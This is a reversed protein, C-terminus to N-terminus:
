MWVMMELAERLYTNGQNQDDSDSVSALIGDRIMRDDNNLLLERCAQMSGLAAALHLATWGNKSTLLPDAGRDLLLHRMIRPGDREGSDGEEGGDDSALNCGLVACHLLTAGEGKTRLDVLTRKGSSTTTPMMKEEQKKESTKKKADDNGLLQLRDGEVDSKSSQEDNEEKNKKSKKSKKKLLVFRTKKKKKEKKQNSSSSSSNNSDDSCIHNSMWNFLTVFAEFRGNIAALHLPLHEKRPPSLELWPDAGGVELLLRVMSSHGKTAALHLPTLGYKARSNADAGHNVLLTRAIAEHNLSAAVHLVTRGDVTRSSEIFSRSPSTSTSTSTSTSSSSSSCKTLLIEEVVEINGTAVAFHLETAGDAADKTDRHQHQLSATIVNEFKAKSTSEKKKAMVDEHDDEDSVEILGLAELGL